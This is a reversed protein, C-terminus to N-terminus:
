LNELIACGKTVLWKHLVAYLALLVVTLGTLVAYTGAVPCLFYGAAGILACFAWGSFLCIMVPMSQKTLVAANKWTFNPNRLNLFLGFDSVLCTYAAVACIILVTEAAGAELVVGLTVALVTAPVINLLVGMGEKALLIEKMGVPASRVIWLSSGEMSISVPLICNMSVILCVVAAAAIPLVDALFPADEVFSALVDRIYDAKVILAVAAAPMIAIGLGGNLMWTPVAIFHSFERALLASRISRGKFGASKKRKKSGKNGSSVVKMFSASMLAICVAALVLTVATFVIMSTINGNAAAGLAYLFRLRTKLFADIEDLHSVIEGFSNMVKFYIVYYGAMVALSLFVTLFSKNKVRSSIIAVIYGLLCSLVSVFLAIVLTLIIRFALGPLDAGTLVLGAVIAPIWVIASYMLSTLYVGAARSVLLLRAPIPLSLMMENDKPLYLSAYTNFVSGFVGLAISFVGALAYFINDYGQGLMSRGFQSLFGYVSFGIFGLLFVFLGIYLLTSNKSRAKGSKRDLFYAQFLELLQKRILTKLM